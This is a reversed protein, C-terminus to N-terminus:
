GRVLQFTFDGGPSTPPSIVVFVPFSGGAPDGASPPVLTISSTIVVPVGSVVPASGAHGMTAAALTVAAALFPTKM